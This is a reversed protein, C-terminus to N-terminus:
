TGQPFRAVQEEGDVVREGEDGRSPRGVTAQRRMSDEVATSRRHPVTSRRTIKDKSDKGSHESSTEKGDRYRSEMQSSERRPGEMVTQFMLTSATEPSEAIGLPKRCFQKYLFNLWLMKESVASRMPVAAITKGMMVTMRTSGSSDNSSITVALAFM